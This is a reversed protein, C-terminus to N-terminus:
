PWSSGWDRVRRSRFIEIGVSDIIREGHPSTAERFLKGGVMGIRPKGATFDLQKEVWDPALHADPNLTLVWDASLKAIGLNNGRAFGENITRRELYVQPFRSSVLDSTGDSSANDVVIVKNLDYTQNLLSDLCRVIDKSSNWSVVVASVRHKIVKNM